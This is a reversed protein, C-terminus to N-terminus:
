ATMVAEAALDSRRLGYGNRALYMTLGDEFGTADREFGMQEKLIALFAAPRDETEERGLASWVEPMKVGLGSQVASSVLPSLAISEAGEKGLTELADPLYNVAREVIQPVEPKECATNLIFDEFERLEASARLKLLGAEFRGSLVCDFGEAVTRPRAVLRIEDRSKPDGLADFPDAVEKKQCDYILFSHAFPVLQVQANLRNLQCFQDIPCNMVNYIREQHAFKIFSSPMEPTSIPEVGFKFLRQKIKPFDATDILFNMWSADRDMTKVLVPGGFLYLAKSGESGTKFVRALAEEAETLKLPLKTKPQHEFTRGVLKPTKWLHAGSASAAGATLM